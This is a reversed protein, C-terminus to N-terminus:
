HPSPLRGRPYCEQGALMFFGFIVGMVWTFGFMTAHTQFGLVSLCLYELEPARQGALTTLPHALTEGLSGTEFVLTTLWLSLYGTNVEPNWVCMFANIDLGAYVCLYVCTCM